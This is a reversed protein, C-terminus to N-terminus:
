ANDNSARRGIAWGTEVRRASPSAQCCAPARHAQSSGRRRWSSREPRHRPLPQPSARNRRLIGVIHGPAPAADQCGHHLLPRSQPPPPRARNQSIAFTSRATKTLNRPFSRNATSLSSQQLPRSQISQISALIGARTPSDDQVSSQRRASGITAPHLMDGAGTRSNNNVATGMALFCAGIAEAM